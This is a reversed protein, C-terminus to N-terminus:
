TAMNQHIETFVDSLNNRIVLINSHVGFLSISYITPLLLVGIILKM